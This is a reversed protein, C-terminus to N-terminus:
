KRIALLRPILFSPTISQMPLTLAHKYKTWNIARIGKGKANEKEM